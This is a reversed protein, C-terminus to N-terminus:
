FGLKQLLPQHLPFPLHFENGGFPALFCCLLLVIWQWKQLTFKQQGMQYVMWILALNASLGVWRYYDIAFFTAVLPFCISLFLCWKTMSLNISKQFVVSIVLFLMYATPIIAFTYYHIYRAIFNEGEVMNEKVSTSLEFYGSWLSHQYAALPIKEVVIQEYLTREMQLKGGITIMLFVALLGVGTLLCAASFINEGKQISHIILIAPVLFIFLEHVLLGIISILIIGIWSGAYFVSIAALIVLIVDQTGTTTGMQQIFFPSFFIILYKYPKELEHNKLIYHLFIGALVIITVSHFVHGFVFESQFFDTIHSASVITGVLLRRVFGVDQYGVYYQWVRAFVEIPVNTILWRNLFLLSFASAAVAIGIVIM